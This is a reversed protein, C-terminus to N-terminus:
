GSQVWFSLPKTITLSGAASPAGGVILTAAHDMTVASSDTYTPPQFLILGNTTGTNHTSGTFTVTTADWQYLAGWSAASAVPDAAWPGNELITPGSPSAVLSPDTIYGNGFGIRPTALAVSGRLMCAACLTIVLLVRKTFSM